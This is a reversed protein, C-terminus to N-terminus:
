MIEPECLSVLFSRLGIGMFIVTIWNYYGILINVTVFSYVAPNFVEPPNIKAPFSLRSKISLFCDSTLSGVTDIKAQNGSLFLYSSVRGYLHNM